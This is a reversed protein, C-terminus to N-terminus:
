KWYCWDLELGGWVFGEKWCVKGQAGLDNSVPYRLKPGISVSLKM